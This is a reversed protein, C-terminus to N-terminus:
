RFHNVASGTFVGHLSSAGPPVSVAGLRATVIMRTFLGRLQLHSRVQVGTPSDQELTHAVVVAEMSQTWPNEAVLAGDKSQLPAQGVPQMSIDKSQMMAGQEHAEQLSMPPAVTPTFSYLTDLVSELEHLRELGVKEPKLCKSPSGTLHRVGCQQSPQQSLEPAELETGNQVQKLAVSIEAM